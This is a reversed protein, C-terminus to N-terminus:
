HAQGQAALLDAKHKEQVGRCGVVISASQPTGSPQEYIVVLSSDAWVHRNTAPDDIKGRGIISQFYRLMALDNPADSTEL